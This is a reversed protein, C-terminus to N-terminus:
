RARVRIRDKVQLDEVIWGERNICRTIEDYVPMKKGPDIISIILAFSQPNSSFFERRDTRTIRLRWDNGSQRKMKRRYVKVPSWKFGHEIVYREYLKSMDKPEPPIQRRHERKGESEPDYTGLSADINIRCYEAGFNPDLPPDYALTIIIEGKVSGDNNRLCDPIPFPFKHM